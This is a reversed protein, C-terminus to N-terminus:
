FLLLLGRQTAHARTQPIADFNQDFWDRGHPDIDLVDIGSMAGTAFAVLPWRTANAGHRASKFGKAALPMKAENCPLTPLSALGTLWYRSRRYSRAEDARLESIRDRLKERGMESLFSRKPLSVTPVVM